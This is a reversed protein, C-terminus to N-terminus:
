HIIPNGPPPDHNYNQQYQYNNEEAHNDADDDNELDLNSDPFLRSQNGSEHANVSKSTSM